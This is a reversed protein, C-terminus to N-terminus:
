IRKVFRGNKNRDTKLVRVTDMGLLSIESFSVAPDKVAIPYEGNADTIAHTNDARNVVAAGAVPLGDSDLVRGKVVQGNQAGQAMGPVGSLLLLSLALLVVMGLPRALPISVNKMM